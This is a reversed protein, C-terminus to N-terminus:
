KKINIFTILFSSAVLLLFLSMFCLNGYQAYLTNISLEKPLYTDLNGRKHLGLSALVEGTRSIVASIGSNAARVITLGEEVARLRATVLHQYPGSSLGYWGDNTLNILWQPRNQNDAVQHPFIIEYCILLGFPPLDDINFTKVGNGAKFDSIVKTIPRLSAPLLNRFPIYEGFPVLHSKAYTDIIGKDSKFIFGANVPLWRDDTDPFYDISGTILYGKDPVAPLMQYFHSKDLAVPFTSATEGWIVIKKDSFGDSQSMEIYDAFNKELEAFDWKLNQPISPQVIRLSIDSNENNNLLNTRYQGFIFVLTILLVDVSLSIVANKRHPELLISAPLMTAIITLASLGYTGFVSALQLFRTDFALCSGLLNWPFGTLFFSRIWEFLGWFAGFAIYRAFYGKFYHSLLAPFASFLGFFLGSAILSIPILWGFSAFDIMLAHAVWSLGCMFFGFGFGYGAMFAQRSSSAKFLLLGLIGFSLFLLGVWHYPPLAFTAICGALFASTKPYSFILNLM